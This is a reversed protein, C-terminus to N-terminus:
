NWSDLSSADLQLAAVWFNRISSDYIISQEMKSYISPQATACLDVSM